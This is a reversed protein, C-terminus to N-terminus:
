LTNHKLLGKKSALYLYKTYNNDLDLNSNEIEVDPASYCRVWENKICEKLISLIDTGAWELEKQLQDYATVFYLEDILEYEKETM